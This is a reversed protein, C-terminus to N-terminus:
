PTQRSHRARRFIEATPSSSGAAAGPQGGQRRVQAMAANAQSNAQILIQEAKAHADAMIAQAQAQANEVLQDTQARTRQLGAYAEAEARQAAAARAELEEVHQASVHSALQDKLYKIERLYADASRQVSEYYGGVQLAAEAISGVKASQPLNRELLKRNLRNNEEAMKDYESSLRMILEILEGRNLDKLSRGM